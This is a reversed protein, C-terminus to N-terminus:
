LRQRSEREISQGDIDFHIGVQLKIENKDPTHPSLITTLLAIWQHWSDTIVHVVTVRKQLDVVDINFNILAHRLVM